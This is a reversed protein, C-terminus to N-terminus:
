METVFRETADANVKVHEFVDASIIEAELKRRADDVMRQGRTRVQELLLGVVSDETAMRTRLDQDLHLYERLACRGGDLTRVLRQVVVVRLAQCIDLRARNKATEPFISLFRQVVESVSNAHLTSYVLHGTMSAELTAEATELDRTEGVLVIDPAMRLSNVVGASFSAVHRGVEQQSVFSSPKAIDDYVYEIPAEITVLNVHAADSELRHRLMSAMLTSKGHGTAGAILILGQDLELAAERLMPEVALEDIHPPLSAISRFTVTLSQRGDRLCNIANVRYRSSGGSWAREYSTDIPKGEGLRTPASAAYIVKVVHMIEGATLHRASLRVKTGGVSAWIPSDGLLFIDSAGMKDAAQLISDLDGTGTLRQPLNEIM